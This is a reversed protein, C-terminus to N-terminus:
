KKEVFIKNCKYTMANPLHPVFKKIKLSFNKFHITKKNNLKQICCFQTVSFFLFFLEQKM